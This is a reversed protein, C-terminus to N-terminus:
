EGKPAATIMEDIKKYIDATEKDAALNANIYADRAEVLANVIKKFVPKKKKLEKRSLEVLEITAKIYKTKSEDGVAALEKLRDGFKEDIDDFCSHSAKSTFFYNGKEFREDDTPFHEDRTKYVKYYPTINIAYYEAGKTQREM